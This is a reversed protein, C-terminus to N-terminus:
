PPYHGRCTEPWVRLDDSHIADTRIGVNLGWAVNLEHLPIQLHKKRSRQGCPTSGRIPIELKFPSGVMLVSDTSKTRIEQRPVEMGSVPHGTTKVSTRRIRFVPPATSTISSSITRPYGPYEASSCPTRSSFPREDKTGVSLLSLFSPNCGTSRYKLCISTSFYPIGSVGCLVTSLDISVM